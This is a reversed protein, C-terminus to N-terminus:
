LCASARAVASVQRVCYTFAYTEADAIMGSLTTTFGTKLVGLAQASLGHVDYTDAFFQWLEDPTANLHLTVDEIRVDTFFPALAKQLGDRSRM